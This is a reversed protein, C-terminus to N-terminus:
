RGKPRPAALKPAGEIAHARAQLKQVARKWLRVVSTCPRGTAKAMQQFTMGQTVRAEIVEAEEETLASLDQGFKRWLETEEAAVEPDPVDGPVQDVDTGPDVDPKRKRGHNAVTKNIVDDLFAPMDVPLAEGRDYRRVFVVLVRQKLDKTSEALVDQRSALQKRIFAGWQKDLDAIFANREEESQGLPMIVAQPQPRPRHWPDLDGPDDDDEAGEDQNENEDDLALEDDVAIDDEEEDDDTAPAGPSEPKFRSM